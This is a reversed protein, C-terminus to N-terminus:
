RRELLDDYLTAIDNVLREIGFRGLVRLRAREGMARRGERDRLLRDIGDALAAADGPPALVGVDPSDIVDGVGGVATSVAPVASAMAEIIAVPTGENRSTLVFVDTAAYVLPLDRQWGLWRVHGSLGLGAAYVELEHRLEGDGAVLAVVAPHSQRVRAVTDLFLTHQKIPTLRGVTTM